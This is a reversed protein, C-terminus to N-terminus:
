GVEKFFDKDIKLNGIVESEQIIELYMPQITTFRKDERYIEFYWGYMKHNNFVFEGYKVLLFSMKREYYLVDLEYVLKDNMDYQDTSLMPLTDDWRQRYYEMKDGDFVRTNITKM